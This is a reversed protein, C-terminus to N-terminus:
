RRSDQKKLSRAEKRKQWIQIVHLRWSMRILFYSLGSVIIGCLISGLFLPLGFSSLNEWISALTFDFQLHVPERGLLFNGVRFTFYFLPLYTFPNSVWTVVVALPLNGRLLFALLAALPIQGPAPIFACFLGIAIGSAVSRRNMHWLNPDKLWEGM